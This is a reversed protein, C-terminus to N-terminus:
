SKDSRKTSNSDRGLIFKVDRSDRDYNLVVSPLFAKMSHNFTTYKSALKPKRRLYEGVLLGQLLVRPPARSRAVELAAEAVLAEAVLVVDLVVLAEVRSLLREGAALAPLGEGELAGQDLVDLRTCSEIRCPTKGLYYRSRWILRLVLVDPVSALVAVVHEVRLHRQLRVHPGLVGGDLGEGASM